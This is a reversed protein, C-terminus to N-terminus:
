VEPLHHQSEVPVEVPGCRARRHAQKAEECYPPQVELAPIRLSLKSTAKLVMKFETKSTQQTRSM